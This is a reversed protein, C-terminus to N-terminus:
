RKTGRVRTSRRANPLAQPGKSNSVPVTEWDPNQSRMAEGDSAVIPSANTAHPQGQNEILARPGGTHTVAGVIAQAGSHIHVHEVVVRQEGGRRLKALADVQSAFAKTLRAITLANSDQQQINDSRNLNGFSRMILAHTVAMQSVIMAELENKPRQLSPRRRHIDETM